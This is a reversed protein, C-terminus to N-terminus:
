RRRIIAPPQTLPVHLPTVPDRADEIEAAFEEATKILTLDLMPVQQVRLPASPVIPLRAAHHPTHRYVTNAIQCHAMQAKIVMYFNM